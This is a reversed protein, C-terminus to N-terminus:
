PVSTWNKEFLMRGDESFARGRPRECPTATSIEGFMRNSWRILGMVCPLTCFFHDVKQHDILRGRISLTQLTRVEWWECRSLEDDSM